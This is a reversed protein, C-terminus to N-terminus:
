GVPEWADLIRQNGSAGFQRMKIKTFHRIASKM